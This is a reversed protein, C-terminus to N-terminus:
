LAANVLRVSPQKSPSRVTHHDRVTLRHRRQCSSFCRSRRAVHLVFLENAAWAVVTLYMGHKDVLARWCGLSGSVKRASDQGKNTTETWLHDHAPSMRFSCPLFGEVLVKLEPFGGEVKRDWM